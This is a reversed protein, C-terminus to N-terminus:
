NCVIVQLVSDDALSTGQAGMGVVVAQVTFTAQTAAVSGGTNVEGATLVGPVYGVTTTGATGSVRSVGVFSKSASRIPIGAVVVSGNTLSKQVIVRDPYAVPDNTDIVNVSGACFCKMKCGAYVVSEGSVDVGIGEPITDGTAWWAPRQIKFAAATGGVALIAYPGADSAATINTAGKALWMVDNPLPTVSDCDSSTIAGVSSATLTNLGGVVTTTYAQPLATCVYRVRLQAVGGGFVASWLTTLDAIVQAAFTLVASALRFPAVETTTISPTTATPSSM